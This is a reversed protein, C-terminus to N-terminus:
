LGRHYQLTIDNRDRMYKTIGSVCYIGFVDWLGEGPSVCPTTEVKVIYLHGVRKVLIDLEDVIAGGSLFRHLM